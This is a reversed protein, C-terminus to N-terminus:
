KEEANDIKLAKDDSIDDEADNKEEKIKKVEVDQAKESDKPLAKMNTVPDIDEVMPIEFERPHMLVLRQVAIQFKELKKSKYPLELPGGRPRAELTVRRVLGAEHPHTNVM